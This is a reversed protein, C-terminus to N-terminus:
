IRADIFISFYFGQIVDCEKEQLVELQEKNEVGEALVKLGLNHGMAIIAFTLAASTDNTTIDHVFERDIKLTDVSLHKLYNLSCYGTGFDDIAIQIGMAKFRNLKDQCVSLDEMLMGETIELELYKPDLGTEVLIKAITEVLDDQRFQSVSLNVAVVIPGYGAEIWKQNQTCAQRLVWEGVTHIQGTEEMLPIFEVPSVNGKEPDKWRLLAEMGMMKGTRADIQPQYVLFLEERELARRLRNKLAMHRHTLANMEESYFTYNSGSMQKSQQVAADANRLLSDIDSDKEAPSFLTVGINLSLFIEEGTVEFAPKLASICRQALVAADDVDTVNDGIIGFEDGGMRALTDCERVCGSLRKAIDKLIYDGSSQGYTYNVAKFNQIDLMLVAQKNDHRRSMKMGQELRDYFLNRNPLDTLRDYNVLRSLRDEAFQRKRSESLLYENTKSLAKMREEVKKELSLRLNNLEEDREWSICFNRALQYIEEKAFPKRIILVNHQLTAQIEDISKDSYATVIVIYIDPDKQRIAKSTELGDWGPPMRMDIFAVAYPRNEQCALQVLEYGEKGQHATDLSFVHLQKKPAVEAKKTPRRLLSQLNATAQVQPSLIQEYSKITEPDDDIVLVRDNKM